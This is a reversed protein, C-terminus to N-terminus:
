LEPHLACFAASGVKATCGPPPCAYLRAWNDEVFCGSGPCRLKFFREKDACRWRRIEDDTRASQAGSAELEQERLAQDIGQALGSGVASAAVALVALGVCEAMKQAHSSSCGGLLSLALLLRM